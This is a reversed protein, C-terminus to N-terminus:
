KEKKDTQSQREKQVILWFVYGLCALSVVMFIAMYWLRDKWALESHQQIHRQDQM